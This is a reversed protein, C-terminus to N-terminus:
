CKRRGRFILQALKVGDRVYAPSTDVLRIPASAIRVTADVVRAATKSVAAATTSRTTPPLSAAEPLWHCSSRRATSGSAGAITSASPVRMAGVRGPTPGPATTKAIAAARSVSAYKRSVGITAPSSTERERTCTSAVRRAILTAGTTRPSPTAGKRRWLVVREAVSAPELARRWSAEGRDAVERNCACRVQLEGREGDRDDRRGREDSRM